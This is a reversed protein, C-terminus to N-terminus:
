VESYHSNLEKPPRSKTRVIWKVQNQSGKNGPLSSSLGFQSSPLRFSVAFTKQLQITKSWFIQTFCPKGRWDCSESRAPKSYDTRLGVLIYLHYCEESGPMITKSYDMGTQFLGNGAGQGLIVGTKFSLYLHDLLISVVLILGTDFLEEAIRKYLM